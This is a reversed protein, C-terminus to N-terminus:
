TNHGIIARCLAAKLAMNRRQAIIPVLSALQPGPLPNNKQAFRAILLVGL